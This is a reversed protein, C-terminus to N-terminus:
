FIFHMQVPIKTWEKTYMKIERRTELLPVRKTHAPTREGKKNKHQKRNKVLGDRNLNGIFLKKTIFLELRYKLYM